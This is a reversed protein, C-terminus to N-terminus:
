AVRGLEPFPLGLQLPGSSRPKRQRPPKPRRHAEIAAREREAILKLATCSVRALPELELIGRHDMVYHVVDELTAPRGLRACGLSVANAVSVAIARCLEPGPRIPDAMQPRSIVMQLHPTSRPVQKLLM